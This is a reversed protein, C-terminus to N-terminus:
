LTAECNIEEELHPLWKDNLYPSDKLPTMSEQLRKVIDKYRSDFNPDYVLHKPRREEYHTLNLKHLRSGFKQLSRDIFSQNKLFCIMKRTQLLDYEVQSRITEPLIGVIDRDSGFYLVGESTWDEYQKLAWEKYGLAMAEKGTVEPGADNENIIQVLIKKSYSDEILGEILKNYLPDFHGKDPIYLGWETTTSYHDLDIIDERGMVALVGDIDYNVKRFRDNYKDGLSLSSSVFDIIETFHFNQDWPVEEGEDFYVRPDIKLTSVASSALRFSPMLNQSQGLFWSAIIQTNHSRGDFLALGQKVFEEESV